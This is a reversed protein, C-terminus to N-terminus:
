NAGDTSVFPIKEDGSNEDEGYGSLDAHGIMAFVMSSVGYM